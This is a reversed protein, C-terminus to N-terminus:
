YQPQIHNRELLVVLQGYEYCKIKLINKESILEPSLQDVFYEFVFSDRFFRSVNITLVDILNDLESEAQELYENYENLDASNTAFIRKQIRRNLMSSRYGSFDFGRNKELISLINQIDSM